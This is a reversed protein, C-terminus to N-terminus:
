RKRESRGLSKKIAEALLIASLAYNRSPNYSMLVFFNKFCAWQRVGHREEFDLIRVTHRYNARKPMETLCCRVDWLVVRKLGVRCWWKIEIATPRRYRWGHKKLFLAMSAIADYASNVLDVRHDGDFDVGFKLINDPMFQAMGIAGAYSGKVSFPDIGNLKTYVLFARLEKLFYSARRSEVSLTYLADAVSYRPKYLGYYTEIGFIATLIYRNVHFRREIRLLMKKHTLIFKKGLEIHKKNVFLRRYQYWKLPKRRVSSIVRKQLKVREMFREVYQRDLRKDKLLYSIIYDKTYGFSVAPIFVCLVVIYKFM